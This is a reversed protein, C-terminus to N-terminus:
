VDEVNRIVVYQDEDQLLPDSDPLLEATGAQKTPKLVDANMTTRLDIPLETDDGLALREMVNIHEERLTNIVEVSQSLLVQM